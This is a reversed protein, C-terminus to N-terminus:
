RCTKKHYPEKRSEAKLGIVRIQKAEKAMSVLSSLTVILVCHCLSLALLTEPRMVFECTCQFNRSSKM